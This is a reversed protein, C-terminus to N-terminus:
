AALVLFSHKREGTVNVLETPVPNAFSVGSRILPNFGQFTVGVPLIGNFGITTTGSTAAAFASPTTFVTTGNPGGSTTSPTTVQMPGFPATSYYIEAANTPAFSTPDGGGALLVQGNALVIAGDGIRATDMHGTLTFMGTTPNYIESLTATSFSQASGLASASSSILVTGDPLLDAKPEVSAALMNGTPTFSGTAPDFLEASSLATFNTGYGGALLVRGDPLLTATHLGRAASMTGAPTFTGASPDYIEAIALTSLSNNGGTILVKGSPLLTATHFARAITLSGTVSFTGSAPDYLEAGNTYLTLTPDTGGVILVRGDALLTSSHNQRPSNMTGTSAFRGSTLDYLEATALANCAGGTPTGLGCSGNPGRGGTVLVQGNSILTAQHAARADAMTGSPTFSGTAPDFLDSSASGSTTNNPDGGTVLVKGSPLLTSTPYRRAASLGGTGCFGNVTFANSVASASGASALLTYGLQGRDITLDPFFADGTTNTIANLRGGLVAASCPPAGNFSMAVSAGSIPAGTADAVRVVVPSGSLVQGGVSNLPQTLFTVTAPATTAAPLVVLTYYQTSTQRPNSSDVVSESFPYVGQLTPTGALAGTSSTPAPQQILVGPPFSTNALSFSLPLTGGSTAIPVNYPVGVIGYPLATTTIFLTNIAITLTQTATQAPTSSDTVNVTFTFAGAAAPTGSLLGNSSLALGPPLTGGTQTVTYPQIGGVVPLPQSYSRGASATPMTNSTFVLPALTVNVTLTGSTTTRPTASSDTVQVLFTFTGATTPSGSLIGDPSLTVGPPLAGSAM